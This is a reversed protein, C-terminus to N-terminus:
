VLRGDPPTQVTVGDSIARLIASLQGSSRRSSEEAAEAEARAAAQGDFLHRMRVSFQWLLLVCFATATTAGLEVLLMQAGSPVPGRHPSAGGMVLILVSCAIAAVMVGVLRAGQAYPLVAAVALVVAVELAPTAFPLLYAQVVNHVLIASAVLVAATAPRGRSLSIRGLVAAGILAVVTGM